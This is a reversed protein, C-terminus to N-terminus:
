PRGIGIKCPKGDASSICCITSVTIGFRTAAACCAPTVPEAGYEPSGFESAAFSPKRQRRGPAPAEPADPPTYAPVAPRNRQRRLGRVLLHKFGIRVIRTGGALTRLRQQQGTGGIRVHTLHTGGSGVIGIINFCLKGDSVNIHDATLNLIREITQQIENRGAM